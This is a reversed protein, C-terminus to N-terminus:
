SMRAVRLRAEALREFLKGSYGAARMADIEAEEMAEWAERHTEKAQGESERLLQTFAKCRDHYPNDPDNAFEVVEDHSLGSLPDHRVRNRYDASLMWDIMSDSSGEELMAVRKELTRNM